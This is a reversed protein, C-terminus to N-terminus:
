KPLKLYEAQGHKQIFDYKEAATMQSRPKTAKGGGGGTAGGGQARPFLHPAAERLSEAWEKPTLPTKGDKGYVVEGDQLAVAKGDEDLTWIAQGRLIFDDLASKEAGAEIAAGRIVDGLARAELAKARAEAKERAQQEAKITKDLEGRLRETRREFVQDLKGEAILKTEEDQSAKQLLGKVADIDLGEFQGKFTDLDTKLTKNQGLLEQNKSKLGSVEKEIAQQIKGSLVEKLEAAKSEDLDLGLEALDIEHTM